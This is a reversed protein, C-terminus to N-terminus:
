ILLEPQSVDCNATENWQQAGEVWIYRKWGKLEWWIVWKIWLLGCKWKFDWLRKTERHRLIVGNIKVAAGGGKKKKAWAKNEGEGQEEKQNTICSTENFLKLLLLKGKEGEAGLQRKTGREEKKEDDNKEKEKHRHTWAWYLSFPAGLVSFHPHKHVRILSLTGALRVRGRQQHRGNPHWHCLSNIQQATVPSIISTAGAFLLGILLSIYRWKLLRRIM